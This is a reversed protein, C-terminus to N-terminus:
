ACAEKNKQVQKALLRILRSIGCAAFPLLGFVYPYVYQSKTEWVIHFLFGGILYLFFLKWGNSDTNKMILFLCAGLWITLSLLKTCYEALDETKGDGYLSLLLPTYTTQGYIQAPGSWLSQYLPDCWTSIVKDRFFLAARAPEQKIKEMNQRLMEAGAAAAKESHAGAEMYTLYSSADYWGPGSTRNDINTAMAVWLVTPIGQDLDAGTRAEFCHQVLSGPLLMCPIMAAAALLKRKQPSRLMHLVLYIIIAIGGILNNNRLLVAVAIFLLMACGNKWSNTRCFRLTHLFALQLCFWGPLLGYAFMIFFLQPLFAFSFLLTLLHVLRDNSIEMSIKWCTYNIGITLFTNLVFHVAPTEAIFSLLLDYLVLGLQHPYMHLYEGAQFSVYDGAKFELAAQYVSNADSRILHSSHLILYVAFAAYAASLLVFLWGQRIRLLQRHFRALLGLLGAILFLMIMGPVFFGSITVKEAASYSVASHFLLNLGFIVFSVVGALVCLIRSSYMNLRRYM